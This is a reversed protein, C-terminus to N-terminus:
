TISLLSRPWWDAQITGSLCGGPHWRSTTKEYQHDPVLHAAALQRPIRLTVQCLRHAARHTHRTSSEPGRSAYLFFFRSPLGRSPSHQQINCTAGQLKLRRSEPPARLARSRGSGIRLKPLPPEAGCAFGDPAHMLTVPMFLFFKPLASSVRHLETHNQHATM